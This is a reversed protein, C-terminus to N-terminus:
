KKAIFVGSGFGFTNGRVTLNKEMMVDGTIRVRPNEMITPSKSKLTMFGKSELHVTGAVSKQMGKVDDEVAAIRRVVPGLKERLAGTVERQLTSIKETMQGSVRSVVTNFSEVEKDIKSLADNIKEIVRTDIETKVSGAMEFIKPARELKWGRAYELIFPTAATVLGILDINVHLGTVKEFKFGGTLEIQFGIINQLYWGAVQTTSNGKVAWEYDGGAFGNWNFDTWASIGPPPNRAAGVTFMSNGTPSHIYVQQGGAVGQMKIENGGHDRIISQTKNAPLELPPMTEANYVRGTVIPRDPDGEEFMVIVEQGVHPIFMGGWNKGGWNQSVRIWPSATDASKGYRDWHFHVKVRGYKDTHITEGSPGVVMATQPGRVMPKRTVRESRFPQHSNLTRFSCSYPVAPTGPDDLSEYESSQLEIDTSVILYEANQDTRPHASLKFLAGTAMSRWNTKGSVQEYKAQQEEIRLRAYQEGDSRQIYDGPYDYIEYEALAHERRINSKVQLDVSPREFDFDTLAYKGPRVERSITWEAIHELDPRVVKGPPIYPIEEEKALAHASYSDAMVMTHRGEAHTFFYYIGEMEMLRSVFDFDSERYQVCYEWPTYTETLEDRVDVMASHQAFIEKIIDPVTKEQFIRCNTTRTLFWLWPSVTASYTYYRGRKGGQAIRTCFGNFYRVEEEPRRLTITVTKGLVDDLPVTADTSLLDLQYEFLRGLEEKGRMRHLLLVDQELPTIIEITRQRNNKM